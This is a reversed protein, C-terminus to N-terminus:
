EMSIQYKEMLETPYNKKFLEICLKYKDLDLEKRQDQGVTSKSQSDESMIQILQDKNITSSIAKGLLELFSDNSTDILQDYRIHICSSNKSLFDLTTLAKVYFNVVIEPTIRPNNFHQLISKTWSSFNRSLFLTKQTQNRIFLKPNSNCESRLKIYLNESTNINRYASVLDATLHNFLFFKDMASLAQDSFTSLQTYFDPESLTIKQHSNIIKTLLTSGCRGTSFIFIPMKFNKLRNLNGYDIPASVVYETNRRLYDYLFVSELSKKRNVRASYITTRSNPDIAYPILPKMKNLEEEPLSVKNTCTFDNANVINLPKIFNRHLVKAFQLNSM